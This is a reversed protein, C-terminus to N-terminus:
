PLKRCAPWKVKVLDACTSVQATGDPGIFVGYDVVPKPGCRAVWMDLNKYPGQYGAAMVRQCWMNSEVVANRIAAYRQIESLGAMRRSFDHSTAQPDALAPGAMLGLAAVFASFRTM